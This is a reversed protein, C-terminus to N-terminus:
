AATDQTDQHKKAQNQLAQRSKIVQKYLGTQICVKGQKNAQTPSTTSYETSCYYAM